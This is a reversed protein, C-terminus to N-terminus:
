LPMRLDTSFTSPKGKRLEQGAQRAEKAKAIKGAWDPHRQNADGDSGSTRIAPLKYQGKPQSM